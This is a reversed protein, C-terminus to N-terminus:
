YKLSTYTLNLKKFFEEVYEKSNKPTGYWGFPMMGKNFRECDNNVFPQFILPWIFEFIKSKTGNYNLYNLLENVSIRAAENAAEMSALATKTYIFDSALFLNKFETKARPQYKTANVSDIYLPEENINRGNIHEIAPDLFSYYAQNRWDKNILKPIGLHLQYWVEDIIEQKTCELATKGRSPGEKTGNNNWGSICISIIGKIRGDGINTWNYPIDKNDWFQKQSVVALSWPSFTTHIHGRIIPIDEKLYYQVGNM